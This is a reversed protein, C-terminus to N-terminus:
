LIVEVLGLFYSKVEAQLQELTILEGIKPNEGFAVRYLILGRHIKHRELWVHSGKVLLHAQVVDGPEFYRGRCKENQLVGWDIVSLIVFM